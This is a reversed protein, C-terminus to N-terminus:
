LTAIQLEQPTLQALGAPPPNKPLDGLARLGRRCREAWTPTSMAEFTSLATRLADRADNRRRHGRLAEGLLLRTCAQDFRQDGLDYLAVAEHLHKVAAAPEAILGQCRALWAQSSRAPSNAILDALEVTARHATDVDGCQVAAEVLDPIAYLTILFHGS